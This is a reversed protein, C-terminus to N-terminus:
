NSINMQENFLKIDDSMNMECTYKITKDETSDMQLINNNDDLVVYVINKNNELLLNTGIKEDM